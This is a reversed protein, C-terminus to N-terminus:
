LFTSTSSLNNPTIQIRAWGADLLAELEHVHQEIRRIAILYAIFALFLIFVPRGL